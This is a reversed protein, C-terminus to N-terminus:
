GHPHLANQSQQRSRTYFCLFNFGPILFSNLLLHPLHNTLTLFSFFISYTGVETTGMINLLGVCGDMLFSCENVFFPVSLVSVLLARLPGCM